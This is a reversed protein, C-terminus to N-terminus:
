SVAKSTHRSYSRLFGTIMTGDIYRPVVKERGWFPAAFCNTRLRSFGDSQCHSVPQIPQMERKPDPSSSAQAQAQSPQVVYLRSGFRISDFKCTWNKDISRRYYTIRVYVWAGVCLVLIFLQQKKDHHLLPEVGCSTRKPRFTPYCKIEIKTTTTTKKKLLKGDTAAFLFFFCVCRHTQAGHIAAGQRM